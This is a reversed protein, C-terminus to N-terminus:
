GLLAAKTKKKKKSNQNSFSRWSDVRQERTETSIFEYYRLFVRSHMSVKGCRIM